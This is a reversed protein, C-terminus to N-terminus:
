KNIYGCLVSGRMMTLTICLQTYYRNIKKSRLEGWIYDTFTERVEDIINYIITTSIRNTKKIRSISLHLTQAHRDGFWFNLRWLAKRHKYREQIIVGRFISKLWFWVYIKRNFIFFNKIILNKAFIHTSTLNTEYIKRIAVCFM